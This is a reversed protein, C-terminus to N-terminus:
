AEFADYSDAHMHVHISLTAAAQTPSASRCTRVTLGNTDQATALSDLSSALVPMAYLILVSVEYRITLLPTAGLPGPLM